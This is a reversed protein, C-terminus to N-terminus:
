YLKYGVCLRPEIGLEYHDRLFIDSLDAGVEGYLGFPAFVQLALGFRAFPDRSTTEPGAFGEYDFRHFSQSLGGGLRVIGHLSRAFRYKYLLNVGYLLYDSTIVAKSEGGTMRRWGFDPELGIFGWPRKVFFLSLKAGFGLPNFVSSWNETLWSDGFSCYPQYSLSLLLDVPRQFRVRLADDITSSLGGPNEYSIGYDGPAYARDPFVVVIEGDGERKVVKGEMPASGDKPLLRVAGEPLLKEGSITIRGDLADMYITAPRAEAIRPLEAKIVSYPLWDTEAEPKGLLNYTVIKYRYDGPALKVHLEVESTLEDVLAAGDAGLLTVRYELADPEAEWRLVQTFDIKGDPGVSYFYDTAEADTVSEAEPASAGPVAEPLAAPDGAAEEACLVAAAALLLALVAALRAAM